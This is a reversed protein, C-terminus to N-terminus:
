NLRDSGKPWSVAWLDRQLILITRRVEFNHRKTERYSGGDFLQRRQRRGVFVLKLNERRALYLLVARGLPRSATTFTPTSERYRVVLGSTHLTKGEAIEGVSRHTKRELRRMAPTLKFKALLNQELVLVIEKVPVDLIAM